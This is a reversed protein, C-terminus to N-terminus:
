RVGSLLDARLEEVIKTHKLKQAEVRNKQGEQVISEVATILDGVISQYSLMSGINDKGVVDVFPEFAEFLPRLAHNMEKTAAVVAESDTKNLVPGAAIRGIPYSEYEFNM